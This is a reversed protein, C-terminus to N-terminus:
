WGQSEPQQWRTVAYLAAAQAREQRRHFIEDTFRRFSLSNAELDGVTLRQDPGWEQRHRGLSMPESRRSAQPGGRVAAAVMGLSVNVQTQIESYCLSIAM